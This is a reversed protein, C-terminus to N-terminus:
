EQVQVQLRARLGYKSYKALTRPLDIIVRKSALAVTPGGSKMLFDVTAATDVPTIHVISVTKWKKLGARRLREVRGAALKLHEKSCRCTARGCNACQVKKGEFFEKGCQNCTWYQTRRCRGGCHPCPHPPRAIGDSTGCRDCPQGPIIPLPPLPPTTGVRGLNRCANCLGHPKPEPTKAKRSTM